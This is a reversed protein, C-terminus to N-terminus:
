LFHRSDAWPCYSLCPVAEVTRRSVVNSEARRAVQYLGTGTRQQGKRGLRSFRCEQLEKHRAIVSEGFESQLAAFKLVGKKDQELITQVTKNCFGCVGDYLLVPGNNTKTTELNEM